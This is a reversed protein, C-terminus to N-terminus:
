LENSLSAYASATSEIGDDLGVGVGDDEANTSVKRDSAAATSERPLVQPQPNPNWFPHPRGGEGFMYPRAVKARIGEPLWDAAGLYPPTGGRIETWAQLLLCSVAIVVLAVACSFLTERLETNVPPKLVYRPIASTGTTTSSSRPPFLKLPITHVVATNGLSLSALKLIQPPTAASSSSSPSPPRYHSFCIQTISFPHVDTLTTYRQLRGFRSQNGNRELTFLEISQDSGAVAAVYQRAGAPTGGGEGLDRVDLALGIRVSNRLRKRQLVSGKGTTSVLVLEAGGRDPANQLLLLATPSLFRLARFRPRGKKGRQPQPSKFVSLVEPATESRQSTSVEFTFVETGTTYAVLFRGDDELDLIDIDEAEEGSGLRIRAIVDTAKPEPSLSFVVIEGAPAMGTAIAGIRPADKADKYPSLRLLRQYTDDTKEGAPTHQRFLSVQSLARTKREKRETEGASGDNNDNGDKKKRPPYELQFSRLHQNVGKRREAQSSNIGALAVLSDDDSRAVALSTVSDEDRSLEIDVVESIEDRRSTNLM